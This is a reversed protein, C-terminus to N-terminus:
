SIPDLTPVSATPVVQLRGRLEPREFLISELNQDANTATDFILSPDHLGLNDTSVVAYRDPALAAAASLPSPRTRSRSLPSQSVASGARSFVSLGRPMRFKPAPQHEPLYVVEYAIDRARMFDVNPALDGGVSVGADYQAFSPRSLKEADSMDFFEAPAFEEPVPAIPATVPGFNVAAIEFVGATDPTTSGFRQVAVNLPLVKQSIELAGAPQLVITGDSGPLSRLTVSTSRGSPHLARWNQPNSLTAILASLVNVPVLALLAGTDITIDFSVRITITFVFGLEFSGTGHAHLPAPGELTLSLQISFLVHGGSRVAVMAAIDAVFHFPNRQILVDFSLFGQVNFIKFGYSVELRAGVQVTNATLALYAEARVHPNDPFFVIGLRAMPKLNMPPPTYAPHFGGVSLLLNANAKWYFRVAMDGSLTFTLVRSDFLSADFELQGSAFDIKGVFGVQLVVLPNEDVPLAARLIGVIAFAPRPLELLVGVELTVLAPTCWGLKAMPGILFSGPQIPFARGLDNLIRPANAIMDVPFLVSQLSGDRIGAQLVEIAAARNLGLLGGVGLLTFGFSLQIPEFEATIVILLSFGKRGDPLRTNLIAIARVAITDQFVLELGGAYEGKAPDYKIFGGGAFGGGGIELGILTPPQFDFQVDFPGANGAKFVLALRLGVGDASFSIPGLHGGLAVGVTARLDPAQGTDITSQIGLDLRDIRLPGAQLHPYTSVELGAGGLFSFGDRSSWRLGLAIPIAQEGGGFWQGLFSDLDSPVIILRFDETTAGLRLEFEGNHLELAFSSTAGKLELRSKGPSGLLLAPSEPAYRLVVAFGAEPLNAGPELPFKLSIDGPRLLVGLASSVNSGGRLELKLEESLDFSTGIASPILPQLILGAHKGGQPPLELLAIGVEIEQGGVNDQLVPIKLAWDISTAPDGPSDKFGEGLKRDVRGIYAPWDLAVFFELLHGALRHFDLDDTGWGYIRTAISGPDSLVKPIEEWQFRTRRYGPRGNAEEVYEQQLIGLALLAAHLSPLATNLYDSLLLEFLSQAVEPLFEAADVGQPASAIGQLAVYFGKVKGLVDFIQSPDPNDGLSELATLAEDIKGGLAIYEAPLSKVDWGLRYLFTRFAPLDAVAGKLPDLALVLHRALTHLTGSPTDM